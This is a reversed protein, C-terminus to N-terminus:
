EFSVSWLVLGHPPAVTGVANRDGATLVEGVSDASARGCGVDVCFGTMSRVMQHCFARAAVDFVLLRDEATWRASLVERETTAGERKRCFSAFDHPGILGAAARNMAEVDLPRGVNWVWTRTLPDPRDSPDVFYRYARTTASFRADFGDPAETVSHITVEEGLMRHLSRRLRHTDPMTAPQFTVVQHRAHVGADTRGSCTTEVPVGLVTELAAELEGQVTRVGEQRAFGRYGGGDYALDIRVVPM